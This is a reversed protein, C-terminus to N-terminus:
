STNIAPQKAVTGTFTKRLHRKSSYKEGCPSNLAFFIILQNLM